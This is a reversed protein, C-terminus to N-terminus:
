KILEYKLISPIVDMENYNKLGTKLKEIETNLTAYKRKMISKGYRNKQDTPITINIEDMTQWLGYKTNSTKKYEVTNAAEKLVDQWCEM